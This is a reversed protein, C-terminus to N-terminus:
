KKFQSLVSSILDELITKKQKRVADSPPLEEEVRYKQFITSCVQQHVVGDKANSLILAVWVLSAVRLTMEAEVNRVATGNLLIAFDSLV